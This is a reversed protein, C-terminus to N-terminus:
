SSKVFSLALQQLEKYSELISTLKRNQTEALSENPNNWTWQLKTFHLASLWQKHSCSHDRKTIEIDEPYLVSAALGFKCLADCELKGNLYNIILQENMGNEEFFVAVNYAKEVLENLIDLEPHIHTKDNIMSYLEELSQTEYKWSM